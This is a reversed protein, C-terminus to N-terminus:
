FGPNQKPPAITKKPSPITHNLLNPKMILYM